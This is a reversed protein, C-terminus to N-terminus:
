QKVSLVSTCRRSASYWPTVAMWRLNRGDALSVKSLYAATRLPMAPEDCAARLGEECCNKGAPIRLDNHLGCSVNRQCLAFTKSCM